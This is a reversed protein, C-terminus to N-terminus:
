STGNGLDITNTMYDKVLFYKTVKLMDLFYSEDVNVDKKMRQIKNQLQIKEQELQTIESKMQSLRKSSNEIKDAEKHIEKFEEQLDKLNALSEITLDDNMFEAPIDVPLLYKALYSRKQLTEFRQLCWFIINHLTVKDYVQLLSEFDEM